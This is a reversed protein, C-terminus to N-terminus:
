SPAEFKEVVLRREMLPVDGAFLQLRYEGPQKFLPNLDFPLEPM